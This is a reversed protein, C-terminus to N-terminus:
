QTREEKTSFNFIKAPHQNIYPLHGSMTEKFLKLNEVIRGAVLKCNHYKNKAIELDMNMEWLLGKLRAQQEPKAEEITDELWKHRQYEFKFPNDGALRIWLDIDFNRNIWNSM